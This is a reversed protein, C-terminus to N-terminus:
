MARGAITQRSAASSPGTRRGGVLRWAAGALVAAACALGLALPWGGAADTGVGIAHTLAIPWCAYAVWHLARWIRPSIRTRLLSTVVLALLLEFAVAGLGVWLPEYASAFPVLALWGITGGLGPLQSVVHVGVFSITLLAINRHLGALTFRPWTASGVRMPGLIGMLVTCTLLLLSVMGTARAVYWLNETM